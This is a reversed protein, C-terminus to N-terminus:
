HIAIDVFDIRVADGKTMNLRITNVGKRLDGLPIRWAKLTGPTGLLPPYPNPYPESTDSCPTQIKGNVCVAVERDGWLRDAQVRLVAVGSCSRGLRPHDMDLGMLCDSSQTLLSPSYRRLRQPLTMFKTIYSSWGTCLFYHQPMAAVAEPNMLNRIVHFPPENYPGREPKDYERYYAFNFL